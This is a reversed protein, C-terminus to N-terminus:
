IYLTHTLLKIVLASNTVCHLLMTNWTGFVTMTGDDEYDLVHPENRSVLESSLSCLYMYMIADTYYLYM